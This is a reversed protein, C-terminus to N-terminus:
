LCFRFWLNRSVFCRLVEWRPPARAVFSYYITRNYLPKRTNERKAPHGARAWNFAYLDERAVGKPSITYFLLSGARLPHM